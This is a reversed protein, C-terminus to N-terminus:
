YGYAMGGTMLTAGREKQRKEVVATIQKGDLYINIAQDSQGGNYSGMAAAVAEYVGRSVAEVIQDNNVVATRGGISGVMEPGAERAIFMEGTSPFGGQAYTTWSLSPWGDLGLAEYIAKKVAGVNTDYTVGLKIKPFSPMKFNDKIAQIADDIKKKWESASFFNKVKKWAEDLKTSIASVISNFKTKWYDLTFKPAVNTNFWKKMDNWKASVGNWAGQVLDEGHSKFLKSPSNIDNVETFWYSIWGFLDWWAPKQRELEAEAGDLLGESLNVGLNSMNTVLDPTVDLRAVEIGDQIVKVTNTAADEVFSTNSNIGLALEENLFYGFEDAKELMDFFAPDSSLKQGVLFTVGEMQEEMDNSMSKWTYIDTLGSKVAEPVVKGNEVAKAVAAKHQNLEPVSKEIQEAINTRAAKDIELSDFGVLFADQMNGVTIAINDYVQDPLVATTGNVFLDLVSQNLLPEAKAVESAFVTSLTRHVQDNIKFDVDNVMSEIPNSDMYNQLATQADSLMTQYEVNNPDQKLYYEAINVNARLNSLTNTVTEEAHAKMEEGLTYLESHYAEWSEPTMEAGGYKLNVVDLKAEFESQALIELITNIQTTLTEVAKKEDISLVGDSFSENLVGQLEKGLAAIEDSVLNTIAGSSAIISDAVESEGLSAKVGVSIAYGRDQIYQTTNEVFSMVASQYAAKDAETLDLGMEVKWGVQNMKDINAQISEKASELDAILGVAVQVEETWDFDLTDKVLGTIQEKTLEIEGFRAALDEEVKKKDYGVTFGVITAALSIGIGVAWGVPGTGFMLLSGAIGLASGLVTKLINGLTAGEYGLDFGGSYSLTVGTVVLGIGMAIRNVKGFFSKDKIKEVLDQISGTFKETLKWALFGTGLATVIDLLDAGNEKLWKVLPKLKKRIKDLEKNTKALVSNDWMTELDLGTWGSDSGSGIGSGSGSESPPQIVNLEDFGMTYDRIKKAAEAAGTMGSEIQDAGTVADQLGNNGWDIEFFSIGLFDALAEAADRLLNVLVTVYPIVVQLIPIFLSGFAQVLSKWAQSLNRVAGEATQMENAYTGVIGQNMAANMMAAYRIEAKQAESLKEISIHAMGVQDLYEQLSAETLAIGANRIPEIEGTIASRVAESADELSKFRDNYAAWIDYSLETLGVSITTVKEQAMGFGSLLSGYLSSYQMFQQMNIGLADNIKQAYAYVEEADEGFARGFRYQIGDWEMAEALTNQIADGVFQIVHMMSEFNHIAAMINLGQNDLADSHKETARAARETEKTLRNTVTVAKGVYKPLKSFGTGIKDIQTALPALATSLQRMQQEFRDLGTTNLGNVVDPIKKLTNVASSLGSLKQINALGSMAGRLQQLKAANLSNLAPNLTGLADALKKLGNTASTIKSNEKLRGLSIALDHIQRSAQGASTSIQIDLSDITTSM